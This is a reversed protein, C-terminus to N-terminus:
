ASSSVHRRRAVWSAVRDDTARVAKSKKSWVTEGSEEGGPWGDTPWGCVASM